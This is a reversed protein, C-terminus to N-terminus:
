ETCTQCRRQLRPTPPQKERSSPPLKPPSSMSTCSASGRSGPLRAETFGLVRSARVPQVLLARTLDAKGPRTRKGLGPRSERARSPNRVGPLRGPSPCLVLSAYTARACFQRGPERLSSHLSLSRPAWLLSLLDPVKSAPLRPSVQTLCAARFRVLRTGARAPWVGVGLLVAKRAGPACECAPVLELFLTKQTRDRQRLQRVIHRKWRAAPAAPTGPVRPGAMIATAQWSRARGQSGSRPKGPVGHRRPRSLGPTSWLRAVHPVSRLARPRLLQGWPRRCRSGM